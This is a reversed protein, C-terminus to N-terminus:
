VPAKKMSLIVPVDSATASVGDPASNSAVTAGPTAAVPSHRNEPHPKFEHKLFYQGASMLIEANQQAAQLANFNRQLVLRRASAFAAPVKLAADQVLSVNQQLSACASCSLTLLISLFAAPFLLEFRELLSDSEALRVCCANLEANLAAVHDDTSSMQKQFSAILDDKLAAHQTLKRRLALPQHLARKGIAHRDQERRSRYVIENEGLRAYCAQLEADMSAIQEDRESLRLDFSRILDEKLDSLARSAACGCCGRGDCLVSM